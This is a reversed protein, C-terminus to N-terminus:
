EPFQLDHKLLMERRYMKRWPVPSTRLVIPHTLINFPIDTPVMDWKKLDYSSTSNVIGNPLTSIIDFGAMVIDSEFIEAHALMTEVADLEMYDDGDVFMVYDTFESCSDMGINSPQGAGGNTNHMLQVVQVTATSTTPGPPDTAYKELLLDATGDNSNDDVVVVEINQYSQKLISEMAISAYDVVNFTTVIICIRPQKEKEQVNSNAISPEVKTPFTSLFLRAFNQERTLLPVAKRLPDECERLSPVTETPILSRRSVELQTFASSTEALQSSNQTFLLLFVSFLLLSIVAICYDDGKTAGSDKDMCKNRQHLHLDVMTKRKTTREQFCPGWRQRPQQNNHSSHGCEFLSSSFFILSLTRRNNLLLIINKM